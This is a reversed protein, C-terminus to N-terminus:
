KSLIKTLVEPRVIEDVRYRAVEQMEYEVIEWDEFQDANGGNIITTILARLKGLTDWVKGTKNWRTYSFVGATRFYGPRRRSEIKYIRAM